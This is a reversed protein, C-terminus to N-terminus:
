IPISDNGSVLLFVVISVIAKRVGKRKFANAKLIREYAWIHGILFNLTLILTAIKIRSTPPPMLVYM